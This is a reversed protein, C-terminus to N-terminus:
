PDIRDIRTETELTARGDGDLYSGSLPAMREDYFGDHQYQSWDM